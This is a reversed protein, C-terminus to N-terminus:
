RFFDTLVQNNTVTLINESSWKEKEYISLLELVTVITKHM